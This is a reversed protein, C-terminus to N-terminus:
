LGTEWNPFRYQSGVNRRGCLRRRASSFMRLSDAAAINLLSWKCSSFYKSSSRLITSNAYLALPRDVFGSSRRRSFVFFKTDFFTGSSMSLNFAAQLYLEQSLSPPFASGIETICWSASLTAHTASIQESNGNDPVRSDLSEDLKQSMWFFIPRLYPSRTGAIPQTENSFISFGIFNPMWKPALPRLKNYLQIRMIRLTPVTRGLSHMILSMCCSFVPVYNHVIYHGLLIVM